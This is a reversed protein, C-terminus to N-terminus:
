PHVAAPRPVKHGETSGAFRFEILEPLKTAPDFGGVLITFHDVAEREVPICHFSVVLRGQKGDEYFGTAAMIDVRHNQGPVLKHGAPGVGNVLGFSGGNKSTWYAGDPGEKVFPM